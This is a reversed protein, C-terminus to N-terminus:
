FQRGLFIMGLGFLLAALGIGRLFSPKQEALLHLFKPMREAWLFYPLGELIFALGLASIFFTFDFEM